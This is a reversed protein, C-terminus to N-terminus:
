MALSLVPDVLWGYPWQMLNPWITFLIWTVLSLWFVVLSSAIAFMFTVNAKEWRAVTNIEIYALLQNPDSIGIATRTSWPIVVLCWVFGIGLYVWGMASATQQALSRPIAVCVACWAGAVYIFLLVSFIALGLIMLGNGQREREPQVFEALRAVSHTMLKQASRILFLSLMGSIFLGAFLGIALM